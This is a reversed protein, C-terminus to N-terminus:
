SHMFKTNIESVVNRKKGVRLARLGMDDCPTFQRESSLRGRNMFLLSNMQATSQTNFTPFLLKNLGCARFLRNWTLTAMAAGATM